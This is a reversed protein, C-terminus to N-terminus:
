EVGRRNNKAIEEHILAVDEPPGGEMAEVSMKEALLRRERLKLQSKFRRFDEQWRVQDIVSVVSWAVAVGACLVMWYWVTKTKGDVFVSPLLVFVASVVNSVARMWIYRIGDRAKHELRTHEEVTLGPIDTVEAVKLAFSMVTVWVTGVFISATKSVVGILSVPAFRYLVEALALCLVLVFLKLLSLSVLSKKEM